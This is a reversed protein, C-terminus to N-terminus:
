CSSVAESVDFWYITWWVTHAGNDEFLTLLSILSMSLAEIVDTQSEYRNVLVRDFHMLNMDRSDPHGLGGHIKAVRTHALLGSLIEVAALRSQHVNLRAM